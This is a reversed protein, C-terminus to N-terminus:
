RDEVLQITSSLQFEFYLFLLFFFTCDRKLWFEFKVELNWDVFFHLMPSSYDQIRFKLLRMVFKRAIEMLNKSNEGKCSSNFFSLFIKLHWLIRLAWYFHVNICSTGTQTPLGASTFLVLQFLDFYLIFSKSSSLISPAASSHLPLFNLIKTPKM